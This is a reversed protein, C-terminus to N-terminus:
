VTGDELEKRAALALEEAKRRAAEAEVAAAAETATARQKAEMELSTTTLFTAKKLFTPAPPPEEGKQEDEAAAAQNKTRENAEERTAARLAEVTAALTELNTTSAVLTPPQAKKDSTAEEAKYAFTPADVVAAPQEKDSQDQAGTDNAGQKSEEELPPPEWLVRATSTAETTQLNTPAVNPLLVEELAPPEWLVRAPSTAETTQLNTPAINSKVLEFPPTWLVRAAAATAETKKLDTPTVAKPPVQAAEWWGQPDPSLNIKLQQRLLPPMWRRHPATFFGQVSTVLLGAIWLGCIKMPSRMLRPSHLRSEQKIRPRSNSCCLIGPSENTSRSSSGQSRRSKVVVYNSPPCSVGTCGHRWRGSHFYWMSTLRTAFHHFQYLNNCFKEDKQVLSTCIEELRQLGSELIITARSDVRLDGGATASSLPDLKEKFEDTVVVHDMDKNQTRMVNEKEPVPPNAGDDDDNGNYAKPTEESVNWARSAGELVAMENSDIVAQFGNGERAEAMVGNRKYPVRGVKRTQQQQQQQQQQSSQHRVASSPSLANCKECRAL